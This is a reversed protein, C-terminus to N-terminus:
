RNVLHCLYLEVMFKENWSIFAKKVENGLYSTAIDTKAELIATAIAGDFMSLM